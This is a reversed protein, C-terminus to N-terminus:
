IFLKICFQKNCEKLARYAKFKQYEDAQSIDLIENAPEIMELDYLTYIYAEMVEDKENSLLEFLKMRQEPIMSQAAIQTLELYEERTLDLNSILIILAENSMELTNNEANIRAIIVKLAPKTLYEKYKDIMSVSADEVFDIYVEQALSRAYKNPSSLIEEASLAGKKYKNRNNQVVLENEPDLAYQKLDVVEGAKISNIVNLVSKMKQTKESEFQFTIESNPFITSNDLLRGLLSYPPTKFDHKRDKKGLYADVILDLVKDYDKEYKRVKLGGLMSYFSIHFVSAIYLLVLPVIVWIAIPLSPLVIGFFDLTTSDKTVYVTVYIGVLAILTLAAITYRKIYM